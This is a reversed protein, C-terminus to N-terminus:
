KRSGMQMMSDLYQKSMELSQAPTFGEELAKEYAFRSLRIIVHVANFTDQAEKPLESVEIQKMTVEKETKV